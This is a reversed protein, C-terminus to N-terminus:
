NFYKLTQQEMKRLREEEILHKGMKPHMRIKRCLRNKSIGETDKIGLNSFKTVRSLAVYTLGHEKERDTLSVVVKNSITMGQAKWVTWSTVPSDSLILVYEINSLLHFL